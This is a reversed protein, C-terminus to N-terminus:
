RGGGGCCPQVTGRDLLPRRRMGMRPGTLRGCGAESLLGAQILALMCRTMISPLSAPILAANRARSSSGPASTLTDDRVDVRVERIQPMGGVVDGALYGRQRLRVWRLMASRSAV